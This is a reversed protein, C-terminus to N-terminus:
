RYEQVSNSGQIVVVRCLLEGFRFVVGFLSVWLLWSIITFFIIIIGRHAGVCHKFGTTVICVLSVPCGGVVPSLPAVLPLTFLTPAPAEGISPLFIFSSLALHDQKQESVGRLFASQGISVQAPLNLLIDMLSIIIISDLIGHQGRYLSLCIDVKMGAVFPPM